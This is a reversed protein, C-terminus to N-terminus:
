MVRPTTRWGKSNNELDKGIPQYSTQPLILPKSRAKQDRVPSSLRGTGPMGPRHSVSLLATPNPMTAASKNTMQTALVHSPLPPPSAKSKGDTKDSIVVLADSSVDRPATTAMCNALASGPPSGTPQTPVYPLTVPVSSSM